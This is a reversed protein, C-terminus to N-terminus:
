DSGVGPIARVGRRRTPALPRLTFSGREFFPNVRGVEAALTDRKAAGSGPWEAHDAIEACLQACDETMCATDKPTKTHIEEM